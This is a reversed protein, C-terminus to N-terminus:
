YNVDSLLKNFVVWGDLEICFDININGVNIM